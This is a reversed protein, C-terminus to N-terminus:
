DASWLTSAGAVLYEVSALGQWFGLNGVVYISHDAYGALGCWDAGASCIRSGFLALVVGEDCQMRQENLM